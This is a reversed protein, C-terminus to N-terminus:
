RVECGITLSAKDDGQVIQVGKTKKLKRSSKTTKELVFQGIAMAASVYAMQRLLLKKQDLTMKNWM